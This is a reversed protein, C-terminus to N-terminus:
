VDGHARHHRVALAHTRWPEPVGYRHISRSRSRFDSEAYRLRHGRFRVSRRILTWTDKEEHGIRWCQRRSCWFSFALVAVVGEAQAEGLGTLRVVLRTHKM